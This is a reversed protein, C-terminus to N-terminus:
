RAVETQERLILHAKAFAKHGALRKLTAAATEAIARGRHKAVFRLYTQGPAYDNRQLGAVAELMALWWTRPNAPDGKVQM